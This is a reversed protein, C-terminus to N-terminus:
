GGKGDWWMSEEKANMLARSDELRRTISEQLDTTRLKHSKDCYKTPVFLHFFFIKVTTNIGSLFIDASRVRRCNVPM